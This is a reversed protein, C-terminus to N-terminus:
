NQAALKKPISPDVVENINRVRKGNKYAVIFAGKVRMMKKFYYAEKYSTFSEKTVYKYMQDYPDFESIVAGSYIKKLKSPPLPYISAAVQIRFHVNSYSTQKSTYKNTNSYNSTTKPKNNKSGTYNTGLSTSTGTKTNSTSGFTETSAPSENIGTNSGANTGFTETNSSTAPSAGFTETNNATSTVNSNQEKNSITTKKVETGNESPVVVVLSTKPKKNEQDFIAKYAALLKDVSSKELKEAKQYYDYKKSKDKEKYGSKRLSKAKNYDTEAQSILSSVKSALSGSLKTQRKALDGSYTNHYYKYAIGLKVSGSILKDLALDKQEEYEKLKKKKKHGKLSEAESKISEAQAMLQEGEKKLAIGQKEKEEASVITEKDSPSLANKIQQELQSTQAFSINMALIFFYLTVLKRM